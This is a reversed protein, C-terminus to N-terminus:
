GEKLSEGPSKEDLHSFFGLLEHRLSVKDMLAM